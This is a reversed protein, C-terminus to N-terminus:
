IYIRNEGLGYLNDLCRSCVSIHMDKMDFVRQWCRECKKAKINKVKVHVGFISLSEFSSNKELFLKINVKSVILFFHLEYRVSFLMNYWKLNCFIDICADLSSGILRLKRYKELIVNIEGRLLFLNDWFIIDSKIFNFNLLIDEFSLLFVSKVDIGKVYRCIEEATFSLIPAILRLLIVLILYLTSQASRRLISFKNITYLRDKIIDFYKSGLDSICFNCIYKYVLNFNYSSYSKIINEKLINLKHLIWIDIKLMYKFDVYHDSFNFDELNLLLFRFTNRIKRYTDSVRVLVEESINIDVSYNISAVWLRLVDAGYKNVIDMPAIVNNLSKSMKKGFKDLVFGHVLINKCPKNDDIILCSLISSQFWGRYQDNGELYLDFPLTSDFFVRSVYKYVVSSDFWVDLVDTIKYYIEKNVNFFKFVDSNFM